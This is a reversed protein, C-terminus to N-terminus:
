RPVGGILGVKWAQGLGNLYQPPDVGLKESEAAEPEIINKQLNKVQTAGEDNKDFIFVSEPMDKFMDVVIPSHTTVIIQTGKEEALNFILNIVEEIRRPHIGKEPEELLLLKPPDPQNIICLLVLFYLTGESLENAWYTIDGKVTSLGLRKFSKGQFQKDINEPAPYDELNIEGFEPLCAKLDAEIKQFTSKRYKGLVLDLFGVLNSADSNVFEQGIGVPGAAVIKNPDPKYITFNGLIDITHGVDYTSPDSFIMNGSILTSRKKHVILNENITCLFHRKQDLSESQETLEIKIEDLERKNFVLNKYDLEITNANFKTMYELAKLFNSKGSNNPGILLNVKQLDLTVNKLSKFNQISVRKLM